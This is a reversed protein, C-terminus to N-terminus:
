TELMMVSFLPYLHNFVPFHIPIRDSTGPRKSVTMDALYISNSLVTCATDFFTRM